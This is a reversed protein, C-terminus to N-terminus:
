AASEMDIFRLSTLVPDPAPLRANMRGVIRLVAPGSASAVEVCEDHGNPASDLPEVLLLDTSKFRPARSSDPVTACQMSIM